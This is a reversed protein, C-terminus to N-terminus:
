ESVAGKKARSACVLAQADHTFCLASVATTLSGLARLPKPAAESLCSKDYVNVIGSDSSHHLTLHPVPFGFGAKKQPRVWM